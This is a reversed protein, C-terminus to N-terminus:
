IFEVGNELVGIKEIRCKLIDGEKLKIEKAYGVGAPTGTSIVDGPELRMFRSAYSIIEGPSFIMQGSNGKQHLEGNVWLKMELNNPNNIEDVTTIWPGMPAFTDPWKGVLWDFFEDGEREEMNKRFSLERASIDNVITYGAIYDGAEEPAIDRGRKGIVVALEVEWDTWDSVKPVKIAGKHGTVSTAPKLFLRPVMEEKGPYEGEGEIIHDAYNGAVCLLKGPEPIPANLGVDELSSSYKRYEEGSSIKKVAKWSKKIKDESLALFQKADKCTKADAFDSKSICANLDYVREDLVVGVNGYSKEIPTVINM